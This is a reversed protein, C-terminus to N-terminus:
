LLLESLPSTTNQRFVEVLSIGAEQERGGPQVSDLSNEFCPEVTKGICAHIGSSCVERRALRKPSLEGGVALPIRGGQVRLDKKSVVNVPTPTHLPQSDGAVVVLEVMM